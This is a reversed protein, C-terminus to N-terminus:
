VCVRIHFSNPPPKLGKGDKYVVPWERFRPTLCPVEWRLPDGAGRRVHPPLFVHACSIEVNKERKKEIQVM